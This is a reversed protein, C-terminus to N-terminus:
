CRLRFAVPAQPLSRALPTQPRDWRLPSITPKPKQLELGGVRFAMVQSRDPAAPTGIRNRGLFHPPKKADTAASRPAAAMLCGVMRPSPAAAGLLLALVLWIRYRTPRM